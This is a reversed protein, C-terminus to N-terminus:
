IINGAQREIDMLQIPDEMCEMSLRELETRYPDYDDAVRGM